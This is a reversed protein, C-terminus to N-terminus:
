RIPIDLSSVRLLNESKSTKSTQPCPSLPRYWAVFFFVPISSLIVIFRGSAAVFSCLSISTYPGIQTAVLHHSSFMAIKLTRPSPLQQLSARTCPLRRHPGRGIEMCLLREHFVTQIREMAQYLMTVSSGKVRNTFMDTERRRWVDQKNWSRQDRCRRRVKALSLVVGLVVSGRM